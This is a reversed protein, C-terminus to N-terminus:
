VTGPEDSTFLQLRHSTRSIADDTMPEDEELQMFQDLTVISNLGFRESFVPMAREVQTMRYSLEDSAGQKNCEPQGCCLVYREMTFGHEGINTNMHDYVLRLHGRRQQRVNAKEFGATQDRLQEPKPRKQSAATPHHWWLSDDENSEPSESEEVKEEEHEYGSLNINGM